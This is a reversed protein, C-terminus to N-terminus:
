GDLLLPPSASPRQRKGPNIQLTRACRSSRGQSQGLAIQPTSPHSARVIVPEGVALDGAEAQDGLIQRGLFNRHPKADRRMRDVLANPFREPLEIRRVAPM